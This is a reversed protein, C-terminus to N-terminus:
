FPIDDVDAYDPCGTMIVSMPPVMNWKDCKFPGDRKAFQCSACGQTVANGHDAAWKDVAAYLDARADARVNKLSM